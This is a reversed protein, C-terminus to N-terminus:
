EIYTYSILSFWDEYKYLGNELVYQSHIDLKLFEEKDFPQMIYEITRIDAEEGLLSLINAVVKPYFRGKKSNKSLFEERGIGAIQFITYKRRQTSNVNVINDWYTPEFSEHEIFYKLGEKFEDPVYFGDENLYRELKKATSITRSSPSKPSCMGFESLNENMKEPYRYAYIGCAFIYQLRWKLEDEISYNSSILVREENGHDFISIKNNLIIGLSETFAAKDNLWNQFNVENLLTEAKEAHSTLNKKSEEKLVDLNEDIFRSANIRYQRFAGYDLLFDKVEEINIEDM